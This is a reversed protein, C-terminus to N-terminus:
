LDTWSFRDRVVGLVFSNFGREDAMKAAPGRVSAFVGRKREKVLNM